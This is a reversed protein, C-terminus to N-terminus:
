FPLDDDNAFRDEKAAEAPPSLPATQNPAPSVPPSDKRTSFYLDREEKTDVFSAENVIVENSMRTEGQSTKYESSQLKGVICIASGKYFYSSIFDAVKGFAICKIYDADQQGSGVYGRKVAMGFHCMGKGTVTQDPTVETSIRGVLIIRNFNLCSM